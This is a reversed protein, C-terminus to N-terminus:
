FHEFTGGTHLYLIKESPTIFGSAILDRLGFLAKAGYILDIKIDNLNELESRFDILEQAKKAYGGFHYSPNIHIKKVSSLDINCSKLVENIIIKEGKLVQFCLLKTEPFHKIAQWIGYCTTGTAGPIVAWDFEKDTERIMKSAGAAGPLGAGGEPIILANKYEKKLNQLYDIENKERYQSRSVHVCQLGKSSIYDLYPNGGEPYEGRIVGLAPIGAEHALAALALLHNSYAGGFSILRDHQNFHQLWGSLKFIKNGSIYSDIQDYRRIWINTHQTLGPLILPMDRCNEATLMYKEVVSGIRSNM